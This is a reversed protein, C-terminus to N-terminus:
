ASKRAPEDPAQANGARSLAWAMQRRRRRRGAFYSPLLLLAGLFGGGAVVGGCVLATLSLGPQNGAPWTVLLGAIGLVVVLSLVTLRREARAELLPQFDEEELEPEMEKLLRPLREAPVRGERWLRSLAEPLFREAGGATSRLAYLPTDCWRWPAKAERMHEPVYYYAEISLEAPSDGDWPDAARFRAETRVRRPVLKGRAFM